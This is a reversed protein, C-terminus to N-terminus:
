TKDDPDGKNEEFLDPFQRTSSQLLNYLNNYRNKFENNNFIAFCLKSRSVYDGYASFGIWLCLEGTEEDELPKQFGSYVKKRVKDYIEYVQQGYRNKIKKGNDIKMLNRLELPTFVPTESDDKEERASFDLLSRVVRAMRGQHSFEESLIGLNRLRNRANIMIHGLKNKYGISSKDEPDIDEGMEHIVEYVKEAIKSLDRSVDFEIDRQYGAEQKVKDHYSHNWSYLGYPRLQRFSRPKIHQSLLKYFELPTKCLPPLNMKKRKDTTFIIMNEEVNIIHKDAVPLRKFYRLTDGLLGGTVEQDEPSVDDGELPNDLSHVDQLEVLKKTLINGNSDTNQYVWLCNDDTKPTSIGAKKFLSEFFDKDIEVKKKKDGNEYYYENTYMEEFNREYEIGFLRSLLEATFVARIKKHLNKNIWKRNEPEVGQYIVDKIEGSPDVGKLSVFVDAHPQWQLTKSSFTHTNVITGVELGYESEFAFSVAKGVSKYLEDITRPPNDRNSYRPNQYQRDYDIRIWFDENMTFTFHTHPADMVYNMLNKKTALVEKSHCTPCFISNCSFGKKTINNSLISGFENFFLDRDCGAKKMMHKLEWEHAKLRYDNHVTEDFENNYVRNPEEIDLFLELIDLMRSDLAQSLGYLYAQQLNTGVRPKILDHVKPIGKLPDFIYDQFEDQLDEDIFNDFDELQLEPDQLDQETFSDHDEFDDLGFQVDEEKFMVLETDEPALPLPSGSADGVDLTSKKHTTEDSM